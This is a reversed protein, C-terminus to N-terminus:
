KSNEESKKQETADPKPLASVATKTINWGAKKQTKKGSEKTQKAIKIGKTKATKDFPVEKLSHDFIVTEVSKIDHISGDGDEYPFFISKMIKPEERYYEYALKLSTKPKMKGDLSM